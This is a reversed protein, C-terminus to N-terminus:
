HLEYSGLKQPNIQLSSLFNSELLISNSTFGAKRFNSYIKRILELLMSKWRGTVRLRPSSKCLGSWESLTDELCRNLNQPIRQKTNEPSVLRLNQFAWEKKRQIMITPTASALEWWIPFKALFEERSMEDDEKALVKCLPSEAPLTNLVFDKFKRFNAILTVKRESSMCNLALFWM